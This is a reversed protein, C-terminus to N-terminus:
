VTANFTNIQEITYAILDNRCVNMMDSMTELFSDLNSKYDYINARNPDSSEMVIPSESNILMSIVNEKLIFFKTYAFNIYSLIALAIENTIHNNLINFQDYCNVDVFTESLINRWTDAFYGKDSQLWNKVVTDYEEKTTQFDSSPDSDYPFEEYVGNWGEFAYKFFDYFASHDYFYSPDSLERFMFGVPNSNSWINIDVGNVPSTVLVANNSLTLKFKEVWSTFGLANILEFLQYTKGDDEITYGRLFGKMLNELELCMDTTFFYFSSDQLNSIYINYFKNYLSNRTSLALNTDNIYKVNDDLLFNNTDNFFRKVYNFIKEYYVGRRDDM